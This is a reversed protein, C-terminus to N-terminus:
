LHNSQQSREYFSYIIRAISKPWLLGLIEQDEGQRINEDINKTTSSERYIRHGVLPEPVYVFRGEKSAMDIWTKYDCSNIYNTDFVSKGAVAKVLLVSPCCISCGFSLVRRKVFISKNFLKPRLFGNMARKINLLTSNTVIGEDRMEYYDSFLLAVENDGYLNLTKLMKALYNPEYYDDQHAMTVLATSVNDYGYNWDDGVLRPLPNVIMEIKHKQCIRQVYDNPTSTSLIITGLTTQKKLSLVTEELFPNEQYACVVFTHDKAEYM